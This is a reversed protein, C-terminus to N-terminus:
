FGCDWLSNVLTKEISKLLRWGSPQSLSSDEYYHVHEEIRKIVAQSGQDGCDECLHPCAIPRSALQNPSDAHSRIRQGRSGCFPRRM